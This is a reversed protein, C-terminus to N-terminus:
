KAAEKRRKIHKWIWDCILLLTYCSALFAAVDSWSTFGVAAWASAGKALLIGGHEDTTPRLIM